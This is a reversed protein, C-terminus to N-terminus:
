EIWEIVDTFIFNSNITEKVVSSVNRPGTKLWVVDVRDGKCFNSVVLFTCRDFVLADGPELAAAAVNFCYVRHMVNSVPLVADSSKPGRPALPPQFIAAAIHSPMIVKFTRLSFKSNRQRDWSIEHIINLTGHM